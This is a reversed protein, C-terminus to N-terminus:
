SPVEKIASKNGTVLDGATEGNVGTSNMLDGDALSRSADTTGQSKFHMSEAMGSISESTM